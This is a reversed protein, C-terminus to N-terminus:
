AYRYSRRGAEGWCEWLLEARPGMRRHRGVGLAHSYAVAESVHVPEVAKAQGHTM